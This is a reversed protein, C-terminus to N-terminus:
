FVFQSFRFRLLAGSAHSDLYMTTRGLCLSSTVNILLLVFFFFWWVSCLNGVTFFNSGASIFVLLLVHPNPVAPCCPIVVSSAAWPGPCVGGPHDAKQCTLPSLLPPRRGRRRVPLVPCGARGSLSRTRLPNGSNSDGIEAVREGLGSGGHTEMKQLQREKPTMKLSGPWSVPWVSLVM